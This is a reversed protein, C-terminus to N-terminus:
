FSFNYQWAPSLYIGILHYLSNTIVIVKYYNIFASHSYAKVIRRLTCCYTRYIAAYRITIVLFCFLFKVSFLAKNM